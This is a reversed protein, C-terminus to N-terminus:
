CDCSRAVRTAPSAGVGAVMHVNQAVDVGHCVHQSNRRPHIQIVEDDGVDALYGGPDRQWPIFGAKRAPKRASKAPKPSIFLFPAPDIGPPREQSPHQFGMM